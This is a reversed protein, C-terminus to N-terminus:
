SARLKLHDILESGKLFEEESLRWSLAGSPFFGWKNNDGFKSSGDARATFTVLYRNKYTYNMRAFGSALVTETRANNIFQTEAGAMDEGKLIDNPFGRGVTNLSNSTSN